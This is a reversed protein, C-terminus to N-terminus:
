PLGANGSSKKEIEALVSSRVRDIPMEMGTWLQFAIVAQGLLMEIGSITVAGAARADALLQTELPNYVMDYVIQGAHLLGTGPPLITRVADNRGTTGIPTANVIVRCAEILRQGEPRAVEESLIPTVLDRYAYNELMADAKARERVVLLVSSPECHLRFAEVAALAAGGNGFICVTGGRISGAHPLLPAAFGAIDTNYGHLKGNDNVIANVAGIALAEPSIRDLLPVVTKKYPITVSYGAIGLARGGKLADGVLEPTAIDFITYVFPLGLVEFATNHILPSWSYAVNRGILGFVKTIQRTSVSHNHM